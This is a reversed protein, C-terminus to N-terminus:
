NIIRNKALLADCHKVVKRKVRAIERLGAKRAARADRAHDRRLIVLAFSNICDLKGALWNRHAANYIQSALHEDEISKEDKNERACTSALVADLRLGELYDHQLEEPVELEKGGGLLNRGAAQNEQFDVRAAHPCEVYEESVLTWRSGDEAKIEVEVDDYDYSVFPAVYGQENEWLCFSGPGNQEDLARAKVREERIAPDILHSDDHM